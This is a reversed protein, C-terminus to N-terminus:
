HNFIIIFSISYLILVFFIVLKVLINSMCYKICMIELRDSCKTSISPFDRRCVPCKNDNNIIKDWCLGCMKYDCNILPCTEVVSIDYCLDCQEIPYVKNKEFKPINYLFITNTDNM